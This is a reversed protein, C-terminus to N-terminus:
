EKIVEQSVLVIEGTRDTFQKIIAKDFKGNGFFKVTVVELDAGEMYIYSELPDTQVMYGCMEAINFAKKAIVKYSKSLDLDMEGFLHTKMKQGGSKSKGGDREHMLRMEIAASINSGTIRRKRPKKVKKPINPDETIWFKGAHAM